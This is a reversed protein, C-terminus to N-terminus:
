IDDEGSNSGQVLVGVRLANIHKKVYMCDSENSGPAVSFVIGRLNTLGKIQGGGGQLLDLSFISFTFRNSYCAM